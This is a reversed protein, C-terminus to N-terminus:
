VHKVVGLMQTAALLGDLGRGHVAGEDTIVLPDAQPATATPTTEPRDWPRPIAVPEDLRREAALISVM